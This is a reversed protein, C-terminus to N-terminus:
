DVGSAILSKGEPRGLPTIRNIQRYTMFIGYSLRLPKLQRDM